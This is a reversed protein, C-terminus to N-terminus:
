RQLILQSRRTQKNSPVLLLYLPLFSDNGREFAAGILSGDCLLQKGYKLRAPRRVNSMHM